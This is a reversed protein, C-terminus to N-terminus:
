ETCALLLRMDCYDIILTILHLSFDRTLSLLIERKGPYRGPRWDTEGGYRGCTQSIRAHFRKNDALDKTM